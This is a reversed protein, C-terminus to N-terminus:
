HTCHSLQALNDADEVTVEALELPDIGVRSSQLGLHAGGLLGAARDTIGVTARLVVSCLAEVAGVNASSSTGYLPRALHPALSPPDQNFPYVSAATRGNQLLVPSSCSLNRAPLTVRAHSAAQLLRSENRPWFAGLHWATHIYV